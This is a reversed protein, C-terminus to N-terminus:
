NILKEIQIQLKGFSEKDFNRLKKIDRRTSIFWKNKWNPANEPSVRKSELQALLWAVRPASFSTGCNGNDTAGSIAL